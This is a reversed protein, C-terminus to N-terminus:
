GTYEQMLAALKQREGPFHLALLTAPCWEHADCILSNDVITWGDPPYPNMVVYARHFSADCTQIHEAECDPMDCRYTYQGQIM